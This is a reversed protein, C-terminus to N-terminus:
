IDLAPLFNNLLTVAGQPDAAFGDAGMEEAAKLTLPAGGVIIKTGPYVAKIEKVTKSMNLLTTTLLASLGVTCDPNAKIADIFKSSKVDVGLDIVEWGNGEVVMGVLNKGIDHLDGSVTGLVFKGRTKIKGAQFFPKLHVMVANMAKAAMLLEPVFVENRSFKDGIRQMADNCAQLIEDSGVKAELASKTLEDAGEQGQLSQPYPSAKNIKGFEICIGIREVFNNM